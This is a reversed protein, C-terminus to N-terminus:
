SSDDFEPLEAGEAVGKNFKWGDNFEVDAVFSSETSCGFIM